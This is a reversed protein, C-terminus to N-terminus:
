IATMPTRIEHSMNALFASKCENAAEAAEAAEGAENFRPKGVDIAWRYGGDSTRLRYDLTFSEGKEAASAFLRQAAARDDPYVANFWGFGLGEDSSLGTFDCWSQSLFTCGHKENTVWIMAPAANAMEVV